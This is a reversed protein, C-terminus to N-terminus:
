HIYRAHYHSMKLPVIFGLVFGCVLSFAYLDFMRAWYRVWPRIPSAEEPSSPVETNISEPASQEAAVLKTGCKACFSANQDVLTGCQSCFM